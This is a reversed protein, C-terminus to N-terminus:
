YVKEVLVNDRLKYIYIHNNEMSFKELEIFYNDRDRKLDQLINSGYLLGYSFMVYSINNDNCFRILNSLTSIERANLNIGYYVIKNRDIGYKERYFAAPTVSLTLVKDGDKINDKVWKMAKDSPYHRADINKYSVYKAKLPPVQWISSILMLYITLVSLTLKFSYEWRIKHTINSIFQGLFVAITPYFAMSFRDVKEWSDATYFLYYVIFIFGFFLTLADRKAIFSFFVSSLFLLFIIYSIQYPILLLYELMKDLSTFHTWLIEYNRQSFFRGIILWPIIPVLSILLVKLQSLLNLKNYKTKNLIM